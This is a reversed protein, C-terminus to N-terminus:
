ENEFLLNLLLVSIGTNKEFAIYRTREAQVNKESWAFASYMPSNIGADLIGVRYGMQALRIGADCIGKIEGM